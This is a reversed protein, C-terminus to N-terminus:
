FHQKLLRSIHKVHPFKLISDHNGEILHVEIADRTHLSLYNTPHKMAQFENSQEIAKFLIIKKNIKPPVYAFGLDQLRHYYLEMWPQPDINENKLNTAVREYQQKINAKLAEKAEINLLDSVVWTDFSIIVKISESLKADELQAVMELSLMGGFSFGALILQDSKFKKVLLHNYYKAMSSIDDFLIQNAEISPDQLIYCPQDVPLLRILDLYCFGTGGIPHVFIIPTKNKSGEKILKLSSDDMQNLGCPFSFHSNRLLESLHESLSKVSSHAYLFSFNISVEFRKNILHILTLAIISNGGLDFFDSNMGIHQPKIQLIEAYIDIIKEQFQNTPSEYENYNVSEMTLQSLIKKDVKGNSTIPVHEIQYYFTPLMYKPLIIKLHQHLNVESLNHSDKLLIYAALHRSHNISKVLVIAQEVLPHLKLQAEIEKLEIRYGNIKIQDDERGVYKINGDSQWLAIDGTNYLRENFLTMFREQNLSDENLYKRALGLGGVYLIGPAGVPMPNLNKGLIYAISGDIPTGIPIPNVINSTKKVLFTTSFTTNETPGYGNVFFKPHPYQKFINNVAEALVAEGGVVLYKLAQFMEPASYSYSHFLQTTLFLISIKQKKLIAVFADQNLLTQKDVLILTAGNLLSGWIELTAADFLFSSTQAVRDTPNFEIYNTSVVLRLISKQEIMVGKPTGTSGSTYLIYALHNLTSNKPLTIKSGFQHNEESTLTIIKLPLHLDNIFAASENDSILCRLASDEIIYKIRASPIDKELPVYCGGAKIVGLMAIIRGINKELFIGVPAEQTIGSQILQYALITSRHDLEAYTISNNQYIVAIQNPNKTVQSSFHTLLSVNAPYEYYTSNRSQNIIKKGTPYNLLPISVAPCDLSATINKLLTKFASIMCSITKEHFLNVNYEILGYLNNDQEQMFCVLNGFRCEHCSDYLLSAEDDAYLRKSKYDNLRLKPVPYNQFVFGVQNFSHIKFTVKEGTIQLIENFPLDQHAFVASIIKKNQKLLESFDIENNISFRLVLLNVFFGIINGANPNHRGSVATVFNIDNQNTYHSLFLGFATVLLDYLTVQNLASLRKLKRTTTADIKFNIRKAHQIEDNEELPMDYILKIKELRHLKKEWFRKQELLYDDSLCKKQQYVYQIYSPAPPLHATYGKSYANYIINLEELLLYFSWGDHIIHHICFLLIQKDTKVHAVRLLAPTRLDFTTLKFNEIYQNLATPTFNTINEINFNLTSFAHLRIFPENFEEEFSCRLIDHREILKLFSLQLIELDLDRVEFAVFLNNKCTKGSLKEDYWLRKQPNSLPIKDDYNFFLEESVQPQKQIRSLLQDILKDISFSPNLLEFPKIDAQYVQNISSAIMVSQLSDIGLEILSRHTKNTHIHHQKLIELLNIKISVLSPALRKKVTYPKKIFDKAIRLMFDNTIQQKFKKSLTNPLLKKETEHFNSARHKCDKTKLRIFDINDLRNLGSVQQIFAVAPINKETIKFYIKIYEANNSEALDCMKKIVQKEIGRGLIRCSLFFTSIILENDKIEYILVGVLGYDGFKDTVIITLCQPFGSKISRYLNIRSISNADLNFQNTRKSLQNIRDYDEMEAPQIEIKIKLNKLFQSFSLTESKLQHRLKNTQYFKTRSDEAGKQLHDFAWINELYLARSKINKPLKIVLVEPIEAKVEGCEVENDDIFIFSDLGLNLENAISKINISKLEWNIRHTCIHKEFDLLMDKHKKFVSLVLEENNKSCLCILFGAQYCEIIFQQFQTFHRDIKIGDLGDEEIIGNWLTGDCDLVIVKYPKRTLLSFNRAVLYSLANYFNLTYPIHGYKETFGDFVFNTNAQHTTESSTILVTNKFSVLSSQLKREINLYFQEECHNKYISPSILILLPVRMTKKLRDLARMLEDFIQASATENQQNAFLDALRILMVNLGNVNQNFESHPLIAQQFLQNYIFQIKQNSFKKVLLELSPRMVDSTFTSSVIIM